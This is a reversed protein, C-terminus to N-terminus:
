YKFVLKLHFNRKKQLIDSEALFSAILLYLFQFISLLRSFLFIFFFNRMNYDTKFEEKLTRVLFNMSFLFFLILFFCFYFHFHLHKFYSFHKNSFYLFINTLILKTTSEIGYYLLFNFSISFQVIIIIIIKSHGKKRLLLQSSVLNKGHQNIINRKINHLIQLDMGLM